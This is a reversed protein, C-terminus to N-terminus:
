LSGSIVDEDFNYVNGLDCNSFTLSSSNITGSNFRIVGYGSSNRINCNHITLRSDEGIVLNCPYYYYSGGHEVICHQMSNALSSYLFIGQWAGETGDVHSFSIPLESTGNAILTGTSEVELFAGNDFLISTGPAITIKREFYIGSKFLYPVTLKKLSLDVTQIDRFGYSIEVWSNGNGTLQSVEDLSSVPDLNEFVVPAKECGTIVNNSFAALDGMVHLGDGGSGSILSNKISLRADYEVDVAADYDGSGANIVSVYEMQNDARSSNYEIGGWAGKNNNNVPGTLVIPNAATGVMKLGANEDVVIWGDVGTFRIVVGPNVTLLANGSVHFTGDIIYDTADGPVRDTLTRNATMSGSLTEIGLSATVSYTVSSGDEATVTYIVPGTFNQAAGSAPNVTAGASLSITPVLAALGTEAPIDTLIITKAQDNIVGTIIPNFQELRFGLIKKESSKTEEEGGKECGYFLTLSALLILSILKKM